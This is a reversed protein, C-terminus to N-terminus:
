FLCSATPSPLVAKTMRLTFYSQFSDKIENELEM